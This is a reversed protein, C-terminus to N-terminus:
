MVEFFARVCRLGGDISRCFEPNKLLRLFRLKQNRSSLIDIIICISNIYIYIVTTLPDPPLNLADDQGMM